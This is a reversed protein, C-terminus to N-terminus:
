YYKSTARDLFLLHFVDPCYQTRGSSHHQDHGSEQVANAEHTHVNKSYVLLGYAKTNDRTNCSYIQSAQNSLPRYINDKYPSTVDVGM